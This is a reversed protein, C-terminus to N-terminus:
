RVTELWGNGIFVLNMSELLRDGEKIDIFVKVPVDERDEKVDIVIRIYQSDDQGSRWIFGAISNDRYVINSIRLFGNMRDSEFDSVDLELGFEDFIVMQLEELPINEYIPLKMNEHYYVDEEDAAFWVENLTFIKSELQDFDITTTLCSSLGVFCMVLVIFLPTKKM